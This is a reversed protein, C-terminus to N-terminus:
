YNAENDREELQNPKKLSLLTAASLIGLVTETLKTGDFNFDFNRTDFDLKVGVLLLSSLLGTILMYPNIKLKLLGLLISLKNM